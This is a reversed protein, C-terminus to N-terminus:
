DMGMDGSAAATVAGATGPAVEVADDGSAGAGAGAVAEQLEPPMVGQLIFFNLRDVEAQSQAAKIAAQPPCLVDLWSWLSRCM